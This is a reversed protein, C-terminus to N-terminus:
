TDTSRASPGSDTKETPSPTNISHVGQHAQRGGMPTHGKVLLDGDQM